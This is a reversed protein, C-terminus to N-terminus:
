SIKIINLKIQFIKYCLWAYFFDNEKFPNKEKRQTTSGFM